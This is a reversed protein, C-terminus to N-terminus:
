RTNQVTEQADTANAELFEALWCARVLIADGDRFHRLPTIPARRNKGVSRYGQCWNKVKREYTGLRSALEQVTFVDAPRPIHNEHHQQQTESRM